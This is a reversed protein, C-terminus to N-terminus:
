HVQLTKHADRKLNKLAIAGILTELISSRKRKENM